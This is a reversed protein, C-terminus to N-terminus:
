TPKLSFEEMHECDEGKQAEEHHHYIKLENEKLSIEFPVM